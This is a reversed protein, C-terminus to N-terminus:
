SRMLASACAVFPRWREEPKFRSYPKSYLILKSTPLASKVLLLFFTERWLDGSIKLMIETVSAKKVNWWREAVLQFTNTKAEVSSRLQEEQHEQPDIQKALLSRSEARAIRADALM